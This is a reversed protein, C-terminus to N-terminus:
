RKLKRHKTNKNNMKPPNTNNIKKAEPTTHNQKRKRRGTDQTGQTAHTETNNM